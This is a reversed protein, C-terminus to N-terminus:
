EGLTSIAETRLPVEMDQRTFRALTHLVKLSIGSQFNDIGYASQSPISSGKGSQSTDMAVVDAQFSEMKGPSYPDGVGRCRHLFSLSVCM